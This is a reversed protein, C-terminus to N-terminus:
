ATATAWLERKAYRPQIVRRIVARGPPPVEAMVAAQDAESADDLVWGMFEARDRPPQKQREKRLWAHWEENSLHREVLPLVTREEHELHGRVLEVLNAM